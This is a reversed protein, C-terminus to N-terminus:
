LRGCMICNKKGEENPINPQDVLLQQLAGLDSASSFQNNLILIGKNHCWPLIMSSLYIKFFFSLFSVEEFVFMTFYPNHM